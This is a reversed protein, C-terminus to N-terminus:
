LGGASPKAKKGVESQRTLNMVRVARLQEGDRVYALRVEDGPQLDAGLEGGAVVFSEEAHPPKDDRVVVVQAAADFRVVVGQYVDPAVFCASLLLAAVVCGIAANKTRM